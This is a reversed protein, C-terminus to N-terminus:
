RTLLVEVEGGVAVGDGDPLVALANAGVLASLQHSGQGGASRVHERGDAGTSAIVRAFHIKGDPRRRLGEDAVAVVRPRDLDDDARGMMKRLAPRAFLEFSVVSSVPNGPLGFVPVRPAGEISSLSVTGFALPKAPRIAVQMWRMDGMRDLVVKVYDFDGMSVGGSTLLADCTDVGRRLAEAIAAEDDPARGLDVPVAGAQEVLALLTARNSDRIQGPALPQPGDVLEDGTSLVGVRARRVVRVEGVGFTALVGLHGATVVDGAPFVPDGPRLDDGAPRVADGPGVGAFLDVEGGRGGAHPDGADVVASEEVMVIADAGRPVPAGTMIRVAEGPGPEVDPPQGARITGAVRLRRPEARSAGAVDAARVAWGDVASNDFPPVAETAVMADVAVCGLADAIPVTTTPLATCAGLVHARAEQLDIV